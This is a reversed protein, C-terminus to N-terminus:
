VCTTVVHVQTNVLKKGEQVLRGVKSNKQVKTMNEEKSVFTFM